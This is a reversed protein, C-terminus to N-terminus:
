VFSSITFPFLAVPQSTPLKDCLFKNLELDTVSANMALHELSHLFICLFHCHIHFLQIYTKEQLIKIYALRYVITTLAIVMSAVKHEPVCM